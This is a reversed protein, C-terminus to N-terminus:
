RYGCRKKMWACVAKVDMEDPCNMITLLAKLQKEWEDYNSVNPSSVLIMGWAYSSLLRQEPPTEKETVDYIICGKMGHSWLGYIVNKSTIEGEYKTVTQTTKDFVYATCGLCHVVVQLKEVDCHLLQYLLYSGAAMSKGIGPTGILVRPVPLTKASLIFTSFWETLDKRVIQWVREVESNIFFDQFDGLSGGLNYPWGKDSSLVMLRPPAAGPQQVGDDKELTNGVARYTWPQEPKGERVEMGTGEGGPVEVVHGWRANYVSEYLGELKVPASTTTPSRADELAADLFENTIGCVGAKVAATSKSWRLLTHVGNEDLKNLDRELDMEGKVAREM